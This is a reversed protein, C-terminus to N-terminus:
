VNFGLSGEDVYTPVYQKRGQFHGDKDGIRSFNASVLNGGLGQGRFDSSSPLAQTCEFIEIDSVEAGFTHLVLRGGGIPMPASARLRYAQGWFSQEAM